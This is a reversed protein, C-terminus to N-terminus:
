RHLPLLGCLRGMIPDTPRYCAIGDPWIQDCPESGCFVGNHAVLEAGSEPRPVWGARAAADVWGPQRM